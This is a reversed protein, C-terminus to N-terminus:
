AAGGKLVFLLVLDVIVLVALFVLARGVNLGVNIKIKM